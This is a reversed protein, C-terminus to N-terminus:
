FTYNKSIDTHIKRKHILWLRKHINSTYRTNLIYLYIENYSMKNQLAMCIKNVTDNDFTEKYYEGRNIGASYQINEIPTVWELNSVHNNFGNEDIHNVEMNDSNPNPIFVLAVLRHVLIDIKDVNYGMLQVRVYGSNIIAPKIISNTAKSYVRGYNSVCYWPRINPIHDATIDKWVEDTNYCMIKMKNQYYAKNSMERNSLNANNIANLNFKLIKYDNWSVPYLNLYYLNNENNDKYWIYINEPLNIDVFSKYVIRAISTNCFGTITRLQVSKNFQALIHNSINNRVEGYNSVSYMNEKVNKVINNDIIKWLKDIHLM